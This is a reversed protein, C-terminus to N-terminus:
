RSLASLDAVIAAALRHRVDPDTVMAGDRDVLYFSDIAQNGATTVRAHRIDLELEAFRRTIGHLTGMTAPGRVDVVTSVDSVHDLFQVDIEPPRAGLQAQPDGYTHRRRALQEDLSLTGDIVARLDRQVLDWRPERGTTPQVHFSEVARGDAATAATAGLIDLGHLAMVGAAACFLGRRDEAVITVDMGDGVVTLGDDLAHAGLTPPAIPTRDPPPVPGALRERVRAILSMTLGARWSTWASPGTARADAETLAALLELTAVTGVEGAVAEITKPDDLDRRTATDPLLLHLRVLTTLTAVDDPVLGIRPGITGVLVVGADTHDGPYGKGLDHLLAALLLLDPRDVAATLPAAQVVAEILHRDVTFRHFANRQPRNRVATWEPLLRTWVDCHDLAEFVPVLAPGTALLALFEERVAAPWPEPLPAMPAAFRRLADRAFPLRLRAAAAAAHLVTTIDEIDGDRGTLTIADDLRAVGDGLDRSRSGSRVRRPGEAWARIRRWTDDATWAIRRGATAIAAMVGDGDAHGLRRAVEDQDQLLLTESPRGVVRHLAVRITLLADRASRTAEDPTAFELLHGVAGLVAADRLGGKGDKLDPELLFAVDGARRHREENSGDLAPLWRRALKTLSRDRHTVLEDFLAADGAVLRADLLTLAVRIDNEATRMAERVTRVSHDLSLREDWIPYWIRESLEDVDPRGRHVLLVDLDSFPCLEQRGYGGLAVLAAGDGAPLLNSLWQDVLQAYARTFAM